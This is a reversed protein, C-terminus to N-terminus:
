EQADDEPDDFSIAADMVDRLQGDTFAAVIGGDADYFRTGAGDTVVSVAEITATKGDKRTVKYKPM